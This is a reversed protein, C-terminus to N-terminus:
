IKKSAAKKEFTTMHSLFNDGSLRESWRGIVRVMEDSNTVLCKGEEGM